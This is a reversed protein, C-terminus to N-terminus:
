PMSPRPQFCIATPLAITSTFRWRRGEGDGAGAVGGSLGGLDARMSIWPSPVATMSVVATVGPMMPLRSRGRRMGRWFSVILRGGPRSWQPPVVPPVVVGVVAEIAPAEVTVPGEFPATEPQRQEEVDGAGDGDANQVYTTVPLSGACMVKPSAVCIVLLVPPAITLMGRRISLDVSRWRCWRDQRAGVRGGRDIRLLDEQRAVGQRGGRVSRGTSGIGFRSKPFRKDRGRGSCRADLDHVAVDKVHLGRDSPFKKIFPPLMPFRVQWRRHCRRRGDRSGEGIKSRLMILWPRSWWSPSVAAAV